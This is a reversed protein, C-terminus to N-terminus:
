NIVPHNMYNDIYEQMESKTVMDEENLGAFVVSSIFIPYYVNFLKWSAEGLNAIIYKEEKTDNFDKNKNDM